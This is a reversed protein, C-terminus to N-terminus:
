PEEAMLYYRQAPHEIIRVYVIISWIDIESNVCHIATYM